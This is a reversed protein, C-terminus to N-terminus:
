PMSVSLKLLEAVFHVHGHHLEIQGRQYLFGAIDGGIRRHRRRRGILFQDAFTSLFHLKRFHGPSYRGHHQHRVRGPYGNAPGSLPQFVGITRRDAKQKRKLLEAFPKAPELAFHVHM